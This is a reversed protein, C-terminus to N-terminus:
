RRPLPALSSSGCTMGELNHGRALPASCVGLFAMGTSTLRTPCDSVCSTGPPTAPKERDVRIGGEAAYARNKIILSKATM